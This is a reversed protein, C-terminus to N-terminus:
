GNFCKPKPGRTRELEQQRKLELLLEEEVRLRQLRLHALEQQYPSMEVLSRRTDGEMLSQLFKESIEHATPSSIATSPLSYPTWSHAVEERFSARPSTGSKYSRSRSQRSSATKKNGSRLRRAVPPPQSCANAKASSPRWIPKPSQSRSRFWRSRKSAPSWSRSRADRSRDLSQSRGRALSFKTREPSRSRVPVKPPLLSRVGIVHPAGLKVPFTEKYALDVSSAKSTLYNKSSIEYETLGTEQNVPSLSSIPDGMSKISPYSEPSTVLHRPNLFWESEAHYEPLGGANKESSGGNYIIPWKSHGNSLAADYDMSNQADSNFNFSSTLNNVQVKLENLSQELEEISPNETNRLSSEIEEKVHSSTAWPISSESSGQATLHRTTSTRQTNSLYHSTKERLHAKIGHLVFTDGPTRAM